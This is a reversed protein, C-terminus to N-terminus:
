VDGLGLVFIFSIYEKVWSLLRSSVMSSGMLIVLGIFTVIVLIVYGCWRGGGVCSHIFICVISHVCVRHIFVCM